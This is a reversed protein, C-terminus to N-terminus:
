IRDYCNTSQRSPKIAQQDVVKQSMKVSERGSNFKTNWVSESKKSM